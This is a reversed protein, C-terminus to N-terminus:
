VGEDGEHVRGDRRVSKALWLFGAKALWKPPARYVTDDDGRPEQKSLWYFRFGMRKIRLIKAELVASLPAAKRTSVVATRNRSEDHDTM